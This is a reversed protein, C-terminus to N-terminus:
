LEEGFGMVVPIVAEKARVCESTGSPAEEGEVAPERVNWAQQEDLGRWCLGREIVGIADAPTMGIM